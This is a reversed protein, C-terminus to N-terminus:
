ILRGLVGATCVQVAPTNPLSIVGQKCVKTAPRKVQKGVPGHPSEDSRLKSFWQRIHIMQELMTEKIHRKYKQKLGPTHAEQRRHRRGEKDEGGEEGKKRRNKKGPKILKKGMLIRGEELSKQIVKM